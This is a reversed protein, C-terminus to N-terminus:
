HVVVGWPLKEVTVDRLQGVPITAVISSPWHLGIATRTYREATM